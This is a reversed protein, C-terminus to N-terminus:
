QREFIIVGNKNEITIMLQNDRIVFSEVLPLLDKFTISQSSCTKEENRSITVLSGLRLVFGSAVYGGTFVECASSATFTSDEGFTVILPDATGPIVLKGKHNLSSWKWSSSPLTATTSAVLQKVTTLEKAEMSFYRDLYMLEYVIRKQKTQAIDQLTEPKETTTAITDVPVEELELDEQVLSVEGLVAEEEQPPTDETVPLLEETNENPENKTLFTRFLKNKEVAFSDAGLYGEFVAGTFTDEETITPVEIPSLNEDSFTTYLLAEGYHPAVDSSFTLILEEHSDNNLDEFFVSVLKTKELTIPPNNQFGETTIIVTSMNENSPHTDRVAIKKGSATIYSYLGPEKSTEEKPKKLIIFIGTACVFLLVVIILTNKSSKVVM